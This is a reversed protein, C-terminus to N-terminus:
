MYTTNHIVQYLFPRVLFENKEKAEQIIALMSKRKEEDEVIKMANTLVVSVIFPGNSSYENGFMNIIM